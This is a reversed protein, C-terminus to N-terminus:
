FCYITTTTCNGTPAKKRERDRDRRERTYEYITKTESCYRLECLERV